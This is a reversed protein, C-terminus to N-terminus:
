ANATKEWGQVIYPNNGLDAVRIDKTQNWARDWGMNSADTGPMFRVFVVYDYGGLVRFNCLTDNISDLAFFAQQNSQSNYAFVGFTANASKWEPSVYAQVTRYAYSPATVTIAPSQCDYAAASATMGGVALMSVSMVAAAVLGIIRKSMKTVNKKM